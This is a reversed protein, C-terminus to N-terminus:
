QVQIKKLQGKIMTVFTRADQLLCEAQEKTIQFSLSYDSKERLEEANAFMRGYKREIEGSQILEQGFTAILGSHTKITIGRDLLIANAAHFMSYYGRNVADSYLGKELLYEAATLREFAVNMHLSIESTEPYM